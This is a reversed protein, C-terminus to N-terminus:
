RAYSTDDYTTFEYRRGADCSRFTAAVENGNEDTCGDYDQPLVQGVVWMESCAPLYSGQYATTDTETPGGDDTSCATLAVPAVLVLAALRRRM